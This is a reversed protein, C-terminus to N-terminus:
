NYVWSLRFVATRPRNYVTTFNDEDVVFASVVAREDFVNRIGLSLAPQNALHPLSWRMYMHLVGYDYVPKSQLIDSVGEGTYIYQMGSRLSFSSFDRQYALNAM